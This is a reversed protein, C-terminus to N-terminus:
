FVRRGDAQEAFVSPRCVRGLPSRGSITLASTRSLWPGCRLLASHTLYERNRSYTQRLNSEAELTKINDPYISGPKGPLKRKKPM